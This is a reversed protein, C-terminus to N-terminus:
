KAVPKETRRQMESQNSSPMLFRMMKVKPTNSNFQRITGYTPEFDPEREIVNAVQEEAPGRDETRTYLAEDYLSSNFISPPLQQEMGDQIWNLNSECISIGHYLVNYRKLWLLAELVQQKRISFSKSSCEGDSLKFHKVVRILSVDSPLRPLINCVTSIDQPFSVIHGQAGLQGYKLHHLPVYMSIQQILLKEGERLCKLEDPVHYQKVNNDDEWLPLMDIYKDKSAKSRSCNICQDQNAFIDQM